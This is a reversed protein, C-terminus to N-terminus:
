GEPVVPFLSLYPTTPEQEPPLATPMREGGPGLHRIYAYLARADSEALQNLNMWPMPPLAKRTLLLTVWDAEGVDQVTLRLNPPYTTGWPGRWGLPTGLLWQVELVNGESQLYGDTHCDNCGAIVALYRGREVETGGMLHVGEPVDSDAQPQCAVSGATVCAIVTVCRFRRLSVIM